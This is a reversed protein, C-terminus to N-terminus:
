FINSDFADLIRSVFPRNCEEDDIMRRITYMFNRSLGPITLLRRSFIALKLKSLSLDLEVMALLVVIGLSYVDSLYPNFPVRNLKQYCMYFATGRVEKCADVTTMPSTANLYVCALGFDIIKYHFDRRLCSADQIMINQPKVDHHVISNRHLHNLGSTLHQFLRRVEDAQELPGYRQLHDWLTCSLYEFQLVVYGPLRASRYHDVVWHQYFTVINAHGPRDNLRNM